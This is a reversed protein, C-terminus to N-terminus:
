DRFSLPNTKQFSSHSVADKRILTHFLDDKYHPPKNNLFFVAYLTALLFPPSALICSTFIDIKMFPGFIIILLGTVVAGGVCFLFLNGSLGFAIGKSDDASNTNVNILEEEM